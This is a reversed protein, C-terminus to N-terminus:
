SCRRAPVFHVQGHFVHPLYLFSKDAPTSEDRQSLNRSFSRARTACFVAFNLQQLWYKMDPGGLWHKSETGSMHKLKTDQFIERFQTTFYQDPTVYIKIADDFIKKLSPAKGDFPVAPIALSVKSGLPSLQYPFGGSDGLGLVEKM